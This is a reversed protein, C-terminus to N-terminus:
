SPDFYHGVLFELTTVSENILKTFDHKKLKALRIGKPESHFWLNIITFLSCQLVFINFPFIKVCTAILTTHLIAM